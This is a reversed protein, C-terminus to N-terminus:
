QVLIAQSPWHRIMFYFLKKNKDLNNNTTYNIKTKSLQSWNDNVHAIRAMGSIIYQIGNYIAVYKIKKPENNCSVIYSIFVVNHMEDVDEIHFDRLYIKTNHKTSCQFLSDSYITSNFHDSVNIGLNDVTIDIYYKANDGGMKKTYKYTTAMSVLPMFLFVLFISVIKM